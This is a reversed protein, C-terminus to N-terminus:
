VMTLRAKFLVYRQKLDVKHNCSVNNKLFDILCTSCRSCNHIFSADYKRLNFNLQHWFFYTMCMLVLPDFNNPWGFDVLKRLGQLLVSILLIHSKLSGRSAWIKVLVPIAVLCKQEYVMFLSFSFYFIKAIFSWRSFHFDKILFFHYHNWIHLWGECFKQITPLNFCKLSAALKISICLFLEHNVANPLKSRLIENHSINRFFGNM